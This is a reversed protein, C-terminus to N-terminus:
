PLVIVNNVMTLSSVNRGAMKETEVRIMQVAVDAVDRRGEEAILQRLLGELELLGTYIVIM